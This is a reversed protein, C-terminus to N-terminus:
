SGHPILIEFDKAKQLPQIIRIICILGMYTSINGDIPRSMKFNERFRHNILPQYKSEM